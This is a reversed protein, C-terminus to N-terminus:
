VRCVLSRIFSLTNINCLRLPLPPVAPLHLLLLPSIPRQLAPDLLLFSLMVEPRRLDKTQLKLAPMALMKLKRRMRAPTLAKLMKLMM